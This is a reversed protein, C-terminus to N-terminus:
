TRATALSVGLNGRLAAAGGGSEGASQMAAPLPRLGGSPWPPLYIRPLGATKNRPDRHSLWQWKGARFRESIFSLDTASTRPPLPLGIQSKNEVETPAFEARSVPGFPKRPTRGYIQPKPWFRGGAERSAFSRQGGSPM